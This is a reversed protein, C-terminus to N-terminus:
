ADGVEAELSAVESKLRELKAKKDALTTKAKEELYEEAAGAAYELQQAWGKAQVPSVGDLTIHDPRDIGDWERIKVVVDGRVHDISNISYAM